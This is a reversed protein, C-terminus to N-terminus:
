VVDKNGGFGNQGLKETMIVGKTMAKTKTMDEEWGYNVDAVVGCM